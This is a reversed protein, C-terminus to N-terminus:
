AHLGTLPSQARITVDYHSMKDRIDPIVQDTMIEVYKDADVLVDQELENGKDRQKSKRKAVASHSTLDLQRRKHRMWVAGARDAEVAARSRVREDDLEDAWPQTCHELTTRGTLASQRTWHVKSHAWLV